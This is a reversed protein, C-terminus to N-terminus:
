DATPGKFELINNKEIKFSGKELKLLLEIDNSSLGSELVIEERTFKGESILVEASKSLVYPKDRRMVAEFSEKKLAYEAILMRYTEYDIQKLQYSRAAMINVSVHWKFSLNVYTELELPAKEIDRIFEIKPLLFATAFEASRYEFKRRAEKSLYREDIDKYYYHHALAHMLNFNQNLVSVKTSNLVILARGDHLVSSCNQNYGDFIAVIVGNKELLNMVSEIPDVNLNWFKRLEFALDEAELGEIELVNFNPFDIYESLFKYLNCLKIIIKEVEQKEELRVNCSNYIIDGPLRDIKLKLKYKIIDSM